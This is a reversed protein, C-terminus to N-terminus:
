FSCDIVEEKTWSIRPRISTATGKSSSTTPLRKSSNSITDLETNTSSPPLISHHHHQAHTDSNLMTFMGFRPELLDGARSMLKAATSSSSSSQNSHQSINNRHIKLNVQNSLNSNSSHSNLRQSDSWSNSMYHNHVIVSQDVHISPVQQPTSLQANNSLLNNQYIEALRDRCFEGQKKGLGVFISIEQWNSGYM